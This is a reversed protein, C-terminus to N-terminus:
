RNQQYLLTGDALTYDFVQTLRYGRQLLRTDNFPEDAHDNAYSDRKTETKSGFRKAHPADGSGNGPPTPAKSEPQPPTKQNAQPKPATEPPANDLIHAPIEDPKPIEPAAAKPGSASAKDSNNSFKPSERQTRQEAHSSTEIRQLQDAAVELRDSLGQVQRMLPSGQPGVDSKASTPSKKART